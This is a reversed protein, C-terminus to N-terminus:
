YALDVFEIWGCEFCLFFGMQEYYFCNDEFLLTNVLLKVVTHVTNNSGDSNGEYTFSMYVFLPFKLVKLRNYVTTVISCLAWSLDWPCLLFCVSCHGCSIHIIQEQSFHSISASEENRKLKLHCRQMKTQMFCDVTKHFLRSYSINKQFNPVREFAKTLENTENMLRKKQCEFLRFTLCIVSRLAKKLCDWLSRYGHICLQSFLM